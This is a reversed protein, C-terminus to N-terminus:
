VIPNANASMSLAAGAVLAPMSRSVFTTVVFPQHQVRRQILQVLRSLKTSRHLRPLKTYVCQHPITIILDSTWRIKRRQFTM